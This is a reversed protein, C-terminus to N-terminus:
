IPYFEHSVLQKILTSVHQIDILKTKLGTKNQKELNSNIAILDVSRDADINIYDLKGNAKYGILYPLPSLMM